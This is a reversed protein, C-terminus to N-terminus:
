YVGLINRNEYFNRLGASLRRAKELVKPSVGRGVGYFFLDNHSHDTLFEHHSFWGSHMVIAEFDEKVLNRYYNQGASLTLPSDGPSFQETGHQRRGATACTMVMLGDPKLLRLMNVWTERWYPNHEMCECSIVVDFHAAKEGYDQGPCVLDVCTGAGVDIGLYQCGTFFDRISGNINLSGIELVSKEQFYEPLFERVGSIFQFQENHAM